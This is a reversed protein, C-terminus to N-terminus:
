AAGHWAQAAGHAYGHLSVGLPNRHGFDGWDTNLLGLAGNERGIAAFNSVNAIASPLDTGHRQWSQTGPCVVVPIGANTFESTRPMRKGHPAYDWNLMVVDKPFEPILESHELVIDGWMNMRKGFRECLEYVKLLFNLYVRGAGQKEAADASRGKGLEWPEDCCVNVEDAEFLPLFERYLEEVLTISGPDTPCLMTGGEWGMAGPLEALHRYRPLQLTLENHSLTALSPIFRIHHKKCHEQVALMDSPSYPSHGRGIDPHENWKFGNKIYLQFENIKWSALREVLAKLTKVKPPKGRACDLYVGRRQFDPEDEIRVAPLSPASRRCRIMERLTQIAYYVGADGSSTIEIGDSTIHIRYAEPNTIGADRTVWLSCPVGARFELCPKLGYRAQLDQALQELPLKDTLRPSTVVPMAPWTFAGNEDTWSKVPILLRDSVLESM